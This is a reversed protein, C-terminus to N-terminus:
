FSLKNLNMIVLHQTRSGRTLRNRVRKRKSCAHLDAVAGGVEVMAIVKSDRIFRTMTLWIDLAEPYM